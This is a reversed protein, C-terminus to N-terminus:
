ILLIKLLGLEGRKSTQTGKLQYRLRTQNMQFTKAEDSILDISNIPLLYISM